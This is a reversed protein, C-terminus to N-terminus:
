KPVARTELQSSGRRIIPGCGQRNSMTDAIFTHRSVARSFINGFDCHVEEVRRGRVGGNDVQVQMRRGSESSCSQGAHTLLTICESKRNSLVM